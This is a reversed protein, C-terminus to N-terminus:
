NRDVFEDSVALRYKRRIARAQVSINHVVGNATKEITRFAVAAGTTGHTLQSLM